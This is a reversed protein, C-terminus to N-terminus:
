PETLIGGNSSYHRDSAVVTGIDEDIIGDLLKILRAMSAPMDGAAFVTSVKGHRLVYRAMNDNGGFGGPEVTHGDVRKWPVASVLHAARRTVAASLHVVKDDGGGHGGGVILNATHDTRVTLTWPYPDDGITKYVYILAPAKAERNMDAADPTPTATAAAQREPADSGCGALAAALAAVAMTTRVLARM